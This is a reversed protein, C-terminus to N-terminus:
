GETPEDALFNDGFLADYELTWWDAELGRLAQPPGDTLEGDADALLEPLVVPHRLHVGRLFDTYPTGRTGTLELVLPAVFSASLPAIPTPLATNSWVVLPVEYVSAFNSLDTRDFGGQANLLGLQAYVNPLSPRHDGFFVLVVPKEEAAFADILAQLERDAHHIAEVYASLESHGKEDLPGDISIDAAPYRNATYPGHAEMSVAFLFAPQEDRRVEDLVRQTLEADSTYIGDIRADPMDELSIFREFGLHRYVQAREWFWRHYTHIASTRYGQSAFISALSSQKKRVYQQYPVSGSPLYRTAHGTLVEFETNATGGGFTPAYLQTGLGERQLRHVTPLPDPAFSVNPLTTVDFFSESMVLIVSPQEATIATATGTSMAAQVAQRTYGRPTPVHALPVNMTFALLFGNVRYNEPQLWGINQVGTRELSQAPSPSLFLFVALLPTALVARARWGLSKSWRLDALLAGLAVVCGGIMAWGPITASAYPILAFAERFLFVDWPFLPKGTHGLKSLHALILAGFAGGTVLVAPVVRGFLGLFFLGSALALLLNFSAQVPFEALWEIAGAPRQVSEAAFCFAAITVVVVAVRLAVRSGQQM